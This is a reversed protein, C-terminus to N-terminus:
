VFRCSLLVISNGNVHSFVIVNRVFINARINSARTNNRALYLAASIMKIAAKIEINLSLLPIIKAKFVNMICSIRNINDFDCFFLIFIIYPSFLM